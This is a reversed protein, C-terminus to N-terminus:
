PVVIVDGSKLLVSGEGEKDIMDYYNFVRIEKKGGANRVLKIKRPSAFPTFGGAESLAQILTVDGRMPYTGPKNVYGIISFKPANIQKVIVSVNPDKIYPILKQHILDALESTTLGEAQIDQILPISIKGDPRVIVDMTLEKNGWVSVTLIDEPGIRYQQGASSTVKGASSSPIDGAPAVKGASAQRPIEKELNEPDGRPPVPTTPTPFSPLNVASKM